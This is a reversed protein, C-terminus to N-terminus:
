YGPQAGVQVTGDTMHKVVTGETTVTRCNETLAFKKRISECPQTGQTKFPYSMRVVLRRDDESAPVVGSIYFLPNIFSPVLICISNFSGVRRSDKLVENIM